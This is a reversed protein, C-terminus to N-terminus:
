INRSLQRLLQLANDAKTHEVFVHDHHYGAIMNCSIKNKALVDSVAATLGISTLSSNVQLTIWAGIYYYPLGARDASEKDLILTIGEEERFNGIVPLDKYPNMDQVLCFVYEGENLVPKLNKILLSGEQKQNSQPRM